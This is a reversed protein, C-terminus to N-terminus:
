GVSLLFGFYESLFKDRYWEKWVSGMNQLRADFRSRRPSLGAVLRRLLSVAFEPTWHGIATHIPAFPLSVSFVDRLAGHMLKIIWKAKREACTVIM